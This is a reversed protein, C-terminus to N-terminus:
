GIRMCPSVVCYQVSDFGVQFVTASDFAMTVTQSTVEWTRSQSRLAVDMRMRFTTKASAQVSISVIIPETVLSPYVNAIRPRRLARNPLQRPTPRLTLVPELSSLMIQHWHLRWELELPASKLYMTDEQKSGEVSALRLLKNVEGDDQVHLEVESISLHELDASDVARHGALTFWNCSFRTAQQSQNRCGVVLDRLNVDLILRLEEGQLAAQPADATAPTDNRAAPDLTLQQRRPLAAVVAALENGVMIHLRKSAIKVIRDALQTAPDFPHQKMSAHFAQIDMVSAAAATRSLVSASFSTISLAGEASGDAVRGKRILSTELDKGELVLSTADDVELILSPLELVLRADVLVGLQVLQVMKPTTATSQLQLTSSTSSPDIETSLTQLWARGPQLFINVDARQVTM